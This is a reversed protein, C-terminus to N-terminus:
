QKDRAAIAARRAVHVESPDGGDTPKAAAPEAAKAQEKLLKEGELRRAAHVRAQEPTPEAPAAAKDMEVLRYFEAKEETANGKPWLASYGGGEAIMQEANQATAETKKGNKDFVWM